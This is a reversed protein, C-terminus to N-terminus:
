VFRMSISRKRCLRQVKRALEGTVKVNRSEHWPVVNSRSPVVFTPPVGIYTL